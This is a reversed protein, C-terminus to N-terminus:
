FSHPGGSSDRGNINIGDSSLLALVEEINGQVPAFHFDPEPELQPASMTSPQLFRHCLAARERNDWGDGDDTSSASDSHHREEMMRTHTVRYSATHDLQSTPSGRRLVACTFHPPIKLNDSGRSSVNSYRTTHTMAVM